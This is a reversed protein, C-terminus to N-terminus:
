ARAHWPRRSTPGVARLVAAYIDEYAARTREWTFEAARALGLARFNSWVDPSELLARIAAVFAETDDAPASLGAEGVVEILSPATSTVVPLGCAMAELPPWGYGEFYSPFVLVDAANYLEVLREDSVIGFEVILESVRLTRALQADEGSLPRGARALLVDIGGDRLAGLVRLTQPVNKYLHGTSVHFLVHAGRTFEPPRVSAAVGNLPRFRQDVGLPVVATKAPHVGRLRIVDRRTSESDCVVYAFRRLFSTSWRYRVISTPRGRFGAVGEQARLLMLDHCTSITREPPLLAAIHAYGQDVVHFLDADLRAAAIPYRLLRTAYGSPRRLRRRSAAGSDDVSFGQLEFASSQAFSAQLSDAFREMSLRRDKPPDRLVAVRAPSTM